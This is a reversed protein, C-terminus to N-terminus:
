DSQLDYILERALKLDELTDIEIWKKGETYIPIIEVRNLVRNLADEYWKDGEGNKLMERIKDFIIKAVDPGFKSIGIYEGDAEEPPISKSIEVIRGKNIKVKTEEEGVIKFNDVVMASSRTKLLIALLSPDFITDVNLVLFEESKIFNSILLFSYINNYSDYKANTVVNIGRERYKEFKEFRYGVIVFIESPAIGSKTLQHLQFDLPTLGDKLNILAKPTEATLPMLRTGKGAALIFAKM